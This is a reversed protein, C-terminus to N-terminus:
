GHGDLPKATRGGPAHVRGIEKSSDLPLCDRHVLRPRLSRRGAGAPPAAPTSSWSFRPALSEFAPRTTREVDVLGWWEENFVPDPYPGWRRPSM